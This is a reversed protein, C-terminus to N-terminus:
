AVGITQALPNLTGKIKQRGISGICAADLKRENARKECVLQYLGPGCLKLLCWRRGGGTSAIACWDEEGDHFVQHRGTAEGGRGTSIGIVAVAVMFRDLVVSWGFRDRGSSVTSRDDRASLGAAEGGLFPHTMGGGGRGLHEERQQVRVGHFGVWGSVVDGGSRLFTSIGESALLPGFPSWHKLINDHVDEKERDEDWRGM